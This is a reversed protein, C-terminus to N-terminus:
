FYALWAAAWGAAGAGAYARQRKESSSGIILGDSSKAPSSVTM